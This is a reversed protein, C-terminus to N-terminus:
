HFDDLSITTSISITPNNNKITKRKNYSYWLELDLQVYPHIFPSTCNQQNPQCDQASAALWPDKKPFVEFKVNRVNISKPFLNVWEDNQGIAINRNSLNNLPEGSCNWWYECVWTDIKGDYATPWQWDHNIGIDHGSLKLIQINWKCGDPITWGHWNDLNCTSNDDSEINWRFFTRINKQKDILYLEQARPNYNPVANPGDWMNVDDEDGIINGNGDEDGKDNNANGNYDWFQLAYQWYREANSIEHNQFEHSIDEDQKKPLFSFRNYTNELKPACWDTWLKEWNNSRCLYLDEGYYKEGNSRLCTNSFMSRCPWNPTYKLHVGFNGFGTNAIYHWSGFQTYWNTANKNWYEEFDLIGGDKIETFLVEQFTYLQEM